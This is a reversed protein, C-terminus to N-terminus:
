VFHTHLFFNIPSCPNDIFKKLYLLQGMIELNDVDFKSQSRTDASVFSEESFIDVAFEFQKRGVEGTKATKATETEDRTTMRVAASVFNIKGFAGSHM